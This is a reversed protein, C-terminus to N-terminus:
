FRDTSRRVRLIGGAALLAAALLLERPIDSGTRPLGPGTPTTSGAAPTVPVPRPTPSPASLTVPPTATLRSTAAGAPGALGLLTFVVVLIAASRTIPM